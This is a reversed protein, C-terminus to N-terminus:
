AEPCSSSVQIFTVALSFLGYGLLSPLIMHSPTRSGPMGLKKLYTLWYIQDKAQGSRAPNPGSLQFSLVKIIAVMVIVRAPIIGGFGQGPIVIIGKMEEM